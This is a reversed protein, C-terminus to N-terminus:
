AGAGLAGMSFVLLMGAFLVGDMIAAGFFLWRHRPQPAFLACALFALASLPMMGIRVHTLLIWGNAPHKGWLNAALAVLGTLAFLMAGGVLASWFWAVPRLWLLALAIPVLAIMGFVAIGLIMDGGAYMGSAAQADPGQTARQRIDVALWAIALAVAFGLVVIGIKAPPRLAQM